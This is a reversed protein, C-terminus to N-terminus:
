AAVSLNEETILTEFGDYEKVFFKTGKPLFVVYLGKAGGLHSQYGLSRVFKRFGKPDSLHEGALVKEVLRADFLLGEAEGPDAWTSWGAGYGSSILLAVEGQPTYYKSFSPHGV